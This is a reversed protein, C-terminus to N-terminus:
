PATAAAAAQYIRGNRRAILQDLHDPDVDGYRARDTASMRQLLQAGTPRTLRETVGRLAPEATCACRDHVDFADDDRQRHGALALCAGCPTASTVRVWGDVAPERQMRDAQADRAATMVASRSIRVASDLGYALARPRGAHRALLWLTSSRAVELSRTLPRGALDRGAFRNPDPPDAASRAGAATLYAGIYAAALRAAQLQAAFIAASAQGVWDDFSEAIRELDVTGTWRATVIRTAADRIAALQLRYRTTVAAADASAPM